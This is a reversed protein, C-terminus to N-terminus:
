MLSIYNNKKVNSNMAKEISKLLETKGKFKKKLNEAFEENSVVLVRKDIPEWLSIIKDILKKM